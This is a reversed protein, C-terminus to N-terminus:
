CYQWPEDLIARLSNPQLKSFEKQAKRFHRARMRMASTMPPLPSDVPLTGEFTLFVEDRPKLILTDATVATTTFMGNPNLRIIRIPEPDQKSRLAYLYSTARNEVTNALQDTMPRTQLNITQYDMNVFTVISEAAQMTPIANADM